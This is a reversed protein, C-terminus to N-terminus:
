EYAAAEASSAVAECNPSFRDCTASGVGGSQPTEATKGLTPEGSTSIVDRENSIANCRNSIPHRENSTALSQCTPSRTGFTDHRSVDPSQRTVDSANGTLNAERLKRRTGPEIRMSRPPCVVVPLAWIGTGAMLRHAVLASNITTLHIQTAWPRSTDSDLDNGGKSAPCLHSTNQSQVARALDRM